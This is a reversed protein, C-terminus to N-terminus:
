ELTIKQSKGNTSCMARIVNHLCFDKLVIHWVTEVSGVIVCCFMLTGTIPGMRQLLM